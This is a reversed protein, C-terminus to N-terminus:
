SPNEKRTRPAIAAFFTIVLGLGIVTILLTMATRGLEHAMDLYWPEAMNMGPQFGLASVVPTGVLLIRSFTLWFRARDEAGCLDVLIRFLSPGLYATLLVAVILTLALDLAFAAIDNM